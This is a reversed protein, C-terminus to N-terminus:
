GRSKGLSNRVLYCVMVGVIGGMGNSIVDDLECLGVSLLYQMAEVAVSIVVPVLAASWKPYLRYVIAGLPIFLWINNLIEIRFTTSSLFRKYSWFLALKLKGIGIERYMLTMYMIFVIYIQLLVKNLKRSGLVAALTLLSGYLIVAWHEHHLFRSLHFM